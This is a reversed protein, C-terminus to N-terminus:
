IEDPISEVAEDYWATRPLGDSVKWQSEQAEMAKVKQELEDIKMQKSHLVQILEGTVLNHEETKKKLTPVSSTSSPSYHDM